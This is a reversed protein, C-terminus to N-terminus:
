KSISQMSSLNITTSLYKLCIRPSCSFIVFYLTNLMLISKHLIQVCHFLPGPALSIAWCNLISSSRGSTEPKNRLRMYPCNVVARLELELPDSVRVRSVHLCFVLACKKFFDIFRKFFFPQTESTPPNLGQTAKLSSNNVSSQKEQLPCSCIIQTFRDKNKKISTHLTIFLLEGMATVPSCESGWLMSSFSHCDCPM